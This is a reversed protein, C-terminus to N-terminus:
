EKEVADLICFHTVEFQSLDLDIQAGNSLEWHFLEQIDDDPYTEISAIVYADYRFVESVKKELRLLLQVSTPPYHKSLKFWKM